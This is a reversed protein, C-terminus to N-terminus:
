SEKRAQTRQKKEADPTEVADIKTNTNDPITFNLTIKQRQVEPRRSRLGILDYNM